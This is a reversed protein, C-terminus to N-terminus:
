KLSAKIESLTKQKFHLDQEIRPVGPALELLEIEEISINGLERIGPVLDVVYGFAIKYKPNYETLYWTASGYPDFLKAVVLPDKVEEQSYLSRGKFLEIFEKTAITM